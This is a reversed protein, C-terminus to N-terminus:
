SIIQKHTIKGEDEEEDDEEEGNVMHEQQILEGSEELESLTTGINPYEPIADAEDDHFGQQLTQEVRLSFNM